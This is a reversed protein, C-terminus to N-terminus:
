SGSEQRAIRSYTATGTRTGSWPAQGGKGVRFLVQGSFESEVDIVFGCDDFSSSDTGSYHEKGIVKAGAASAGFALVALIAVGALAFRWERRNGQRM